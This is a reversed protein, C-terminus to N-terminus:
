LGDFQRFTQGGDATTGIMINRDVDNEGVLGTFQQVSPIVVNLDNDLAASRTSADDWSLKEETLKSLYVRNKGTVFKVAKYPSVGYLTSGQVFTEDAYSAEVEFQGDVSGEGQVLSYAALSVMDTVAIRDDKHWYMQISGDAGDQAYTRTLDNDITASLSKLSYQEAVVDSVEAQYCATVALLPLVFLLLRRM